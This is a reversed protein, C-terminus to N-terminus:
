GKLDGIRSQAITVAALTATEARLIRPGLTAFRWGHGRLLSVEDPSLGGEPGCLLALPGDEEKLLAALPSAAEPHLAVRRAHDALRSAAEATSAAYAFDPLVNRGCQAAAGRIVAEMREIKRAADAPAWRVISREAAFLVLRRVGLEVAKQAIWEPKDGKSLAFALTLALPSERSVVRPEGARVTVAGQALAVIEAEAESSQADFLIVRQGVRARLVQRLHHAVEGRLVIEGARLKDVPHRSM